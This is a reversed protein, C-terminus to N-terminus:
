SHDLSKNPGKMGRAAKPVYTRAHAIWANLSAANETTMEFYQSKGDAFCVEMQWSGPVTEDNWVLQMSIIQNMDYEVGDLFISDM